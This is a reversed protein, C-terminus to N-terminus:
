RYRKLLADITQAPSQGKAVFPGPITQGLDRDRGLMSMPLSLSRSPDRDDDTDGDVSSCGYQYREPSAGRTEELLIITLLLSQPDFSLHPSPSIFIQTLFM